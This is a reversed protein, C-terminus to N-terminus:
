WDIKIQYEGTEILGRKYLDNALVYISPFFNRDWFLNIHHIDKKWKEKDDGYYYSCKKLEKDTPNLPAKPDRELWSKFSVGMKDGNIIEPLTDNEFDELEDDEVPINLYFTGREQCGNQQQFCYPKGYTKIVLADWDQLSVEKVLTYKLM